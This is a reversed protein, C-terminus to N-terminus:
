RRTDVSGQHAAKSFAAVLIRRAEAPRPHEAEVSTGL